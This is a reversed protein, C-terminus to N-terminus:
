QQIKFTIPLTFTVRAPKNRQMGPKWGKKLNNAKDMVDMAADTLTKDPSRLIQIKGIKGDKEVVFQVVVNGQIGNELAIQPYKVNDMVWARFKEIGGGQFTPMQEVSVFIEEEEIVEEKEEIDPEWDFDDFESADETFTIVPQKIEKDDAVIVLKSYPNDADSIRAPVYTRLNKQVKGPLDWYSEGYLSRAVYDRYCDFAHEIEYYVESYLEDTVESDVKLSVIGVSLGIQVHPVLEEVRKESLKEDVLFDFIEHSLRSHGTHNRVLDSRKCIQNDVMINGSCSVNVEVVNRANVEVLIPEGYDMSDDYVPREKLRKPTEAVPEEREIKRTPKEAPEVDNNKKVKNTDSCGVVVLIMTAFLLKKM